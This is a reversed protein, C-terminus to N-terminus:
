MFLGQLVMKEMPLTSFVPCLLGQSLNLTWVSDKAMQQKNGQGGILIAKRKDILCMDHGWRGSPM